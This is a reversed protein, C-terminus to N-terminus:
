PSFFRTCTKGLDSACGTMFVTTGLIALLLLIRMTVKNM